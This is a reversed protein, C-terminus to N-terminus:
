DKAEAPPVYPQIVNGEVKTWEELEQRHRNEMDDPVWYTQGDMVVAITKGDAMWTASEIM